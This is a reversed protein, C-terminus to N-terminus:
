LVAHQRGEKTNFQQSGTYKRDSLVRKLEVDVLKLHEQMHRTANRGDKKELSKAIREATRVAQDPPCLEDPFFKEYQEHAKEVILRMIEGVMKNHTADAIAMHFKFDPAYFRKPDKRCAKMQDLARLIRDMDETDARAAALSVANCEIIHRLEMLDLINEAAMVNQLNAYSLTGDPMDSRVFTGKGQSAELYGMLVLGKVAERISSRGVGLMRSMERETPLRDGPKLDGSKLNKLIEEIVM